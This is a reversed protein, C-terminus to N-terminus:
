PVVTISASDVLDPQGVLPYTATIAVPGGPALGTVAGFFSVEALHEASSTWTVVTSFDRPPPSACVGTGTLTATAVLPLPDGVGVTGTAPTVQVGDVMAAVGQVVWPSTGLTGTTPSTKGDLTARLIATGNGVIRFSQRVPGNFAVLGTPRAIAPNSSVWAVQDTNDHSGSAYVGTAECQVSFNVGSPLCRLQDAAPSSAGYPRCSVIIPTVGPTTLLAEVAVALAGSHGRFKAVVSTKGIARGTVLGIKSVTAVLPAGSSWITQPHATVNQRSGDTFTATASLQRIGGVALPGTSPAHVTLSSVLPRFTAAVTKNATMTFSCSPNTAATTCGAWSVFEAAPSSSPAAVLTVPTGYNVVEACDGGCSIGGALGTVTGLPAGVKVVNLGLRKLSYDAIVSANANLTLACTANTGRFACDGGWRFTTSVIPASRTLTVVTGGLYTSSCVAVGLGCSFAPIGAPSAAATITGTSNGPKTVTLGFQPKFTATVSRNVTLLNACVGVGTCSQSWGTFRHGPAATATLPVSTGYDFDLACPTSGTDCAVGPGSVSGQGIVTVTLRRQQISFNAGVLATPTSANVSCALGSCAGFFGAFSWGVAPTPTLKVVIGRAFDFTATTCPLGCSIGAPTSTVTGLGGKTLALATVDKFNPSVSVNAAPIKFACTANTSGNCVTGTWNVFRSGTIPTAQLVVPTGFDLTALCDSNGAGCSIPDPLTTTTAASGNLRPLMTVAYPILQFAATVSQNNGAPVFTCTTTSSVCANGFGLFRSGVAPTARLTVARADFAAESCDAGCSLGLGTVTGAGTGSKVVTLVTRARYTPTVTVNARLPFACTANTAGGACAVGTWSVFVFGDNPAAQLAVQTGYDFAGSCVTGGDGCDITGGPLPPLNVVSGNPRNVVTLSQRTLTFRGIASRNQSMVATCGAKGSCADGGVWQFGTGVAPQPTLVVATNLAYLQSVSCNGTCTLGPATTSVIRGSGNGSAQVQLTRAEGFRLTVSRNATLLVRCISGNLGTCGTWSTLRSDAGLAPTLLVTTGYDYDASCQTHTSGGCDIGAPSSTAFGVAAGTAAATVSLAHRKLQFTATVSRNLQGVTSVVCAGTAQGSCVDGTWGLFGNGTAPAPTLTVRTGTFVEQFCDAGCSIGTGTVTGAGNGAKLVRVGTVARFLASTSANATMTFACTATTRGHCPGGSWSLFRNGPEPTAQLVVPTGRLVDSVCAPGGGFLCTGGPGAVAGVAGQVPTGAPTAVALTLAHIGTFTANVSRPATMVVTCPGSGTCGDAWGTFTSGSAAQPLLSVSTGSPLATVCVGSSCQVGIPDSTLTGSGTVRTTLPVTTGSYLQRLFVQGGTERLDLWAITPVGAGATGGSPTLALAPRVADLAADSIGADRASHFGLDEWATAGNWRRVFIQAPNENATLAVWTVIPRGSADVGVRPLTNVTDVPTLGGGTASGALPAWSAGTWRRVWVYAGGSAPWEEWALTLKGTADAALSPNFSGSTSASVGGAGGRGPAGDAVPVVPGVAMWATGNWRTVYVDTNTSTVLGITTYYTFAVVPAGTSDLALSPTDVDHFIAGLPSTFSRANSAGGGAFDSGVFQWASGTWRRVYVQVTADVVAPAAAVAVGTEALRLFAVIPHGDPDLGLSFQGLIEAITGSIGGASDSGGLADFTTGTRVRLRVESNGAGDETLWAVHIAGSSAIRVQPEYGPGLGGPGSLIEWASGNWRKVVIPGQSSTADPYETYAVVPRGDGGVAVAGDFIAKPSAAQSVGNGSASGGLEQWFPSVGADVSGAGALLVLVVCAVRPCVTSL